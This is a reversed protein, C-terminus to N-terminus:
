NGARPQEEGDSKSATAQERTRSWLEEFFAKDKKNVVHNMWSSTNKLRWDIPPQVVRLYKTLRLMKARRHIKHWQCEREPYVECHGNERVGGCPGNRLQKPCKMPCTLATWKLVCHGCGQCGFMVKKLALEPAWILGYLARAIPNNPVGTAEQHTAM